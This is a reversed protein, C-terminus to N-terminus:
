PWRGILLLPFMLINKGYSHFNKHAIPRSSSNIFNYVIFIVYWTVCRDTIRAMDSLINIACFCNCLKSIYVSVCKLFKWIPISLSIKLLIVQRSLLFLPPLDESISIRNETTVKFSPCGHVFVQRHRILRCLLWFQTPLLFRYLTVTDIAMWRKSTNWRILWEIVCIFVFLLAVISWTRHM